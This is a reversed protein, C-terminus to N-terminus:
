VKSIESLEKTLHTFRNILETVKVQDRQTEAARIDFELNALQANIYKRRMLMVLENFESKLEQDSFGNWLEQAKLYAFELKYSSEPQVSQMVMEITPASESLQSIQSIIPAVQPDLADVPVTALEPKLLAPNKLVLSLLAESLVDIPVNPTSKIQAQGSEGAPVYEHVDLDDKFSIIDDEVDSEKVRLFAAVQGVWHSHEVRSTLRKVFPAISSLLAKKSDASLPNYNIRARDFYFQIVPKAANAVQGWGSGFKKVYDAPDKCEPDNLEIVKVAFNQALALGIGRRTAIAGAQDTDFCFDLNVTYRQLLRLHSPTLATGSSAIVNKVGAQYSMLADMNGEVLVCRDSQRIPLKAKDLGYLIRSKDYVLTQPTNIYKAGETDPQGFIRASFGVVQGNVDAIPFTIRSRFRDYQKGEREVLLGASVLERNSYGCDNLFKGLAHWDDPAFGLRFEKITQDQVGRERLYALAQQGVPGHWLQKEFFKTATEIIELIRTKEDRVKPDFTDLTVGAKQALIRLAEPFEVGEIEKVFGFVDGGKSCGFCHWIQREPSIYFSPTKENHFPCRAKFNVGSKQTKIYGGIVEVIDLRSKIQDITDPM